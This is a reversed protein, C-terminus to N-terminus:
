GHEAEEEEVLAQIKSVSSERERKRVHCNVVFDRITRLSDYEGLNEDKWLESYPVDVIVNEEEEEMEVVHKNLRDGGEQQRGNDADDDCSTTTNHSTRRRITTTHVKANVEEMENMFPLCLEDVFVSNRGEVLPANAIDQLLQKRDTLFVATSIGVLISVSMDVFLMGLSHFVDQGGGGGRIHNSNSNNTHGSDLISQRVDQLSTSSPMSSSADGHSMMQTGHSSRGHVNHRHPPHPPYQNRGGNDIYKQIINGIGGVSNNNTTTTSTRSSSSSSYKQAASVVTWVKALITYCGYMDWGLCATHSTADVM